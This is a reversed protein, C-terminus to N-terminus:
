FFQFLFHFQAWQVWRVWVAGRRCSCSAAAAVPASFIVASISVRFAPSASSAAAFFFSASASRARRSSFIFSTLPVVVVVVARSM